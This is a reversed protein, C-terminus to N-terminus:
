GKQVHATRRSPQQKRGTHRINTSYSQATQSCNNCVFIIIIIIIKVEAGPRSFRTRRDIREYTPAQSESRKSGAPRVPRARATRLSQRGWTRCLPRRYGPFSGSSPTGTGTPCRVSVPRATRSWTPVSRLAAAAANCSAVVDCWVPLETM